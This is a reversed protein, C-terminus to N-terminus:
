IKNGDKIKKNIVKACGKRYNMKKEPLYKGNKQEM